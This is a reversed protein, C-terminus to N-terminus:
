LVDVVSQVVYATALRVGLLQYRGHAVATLGQEERTVVLQNEVHHTNRKTITVLKNQKSGM